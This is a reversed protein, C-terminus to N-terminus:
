PYGISIVVTLAGGNKIDCVRRLSMGGQSARTGCHAKGYFATHYNAANFVDALSPLSTDIPLNNREVGHTWAYHGTQLTARWPSCVPHMSMCEQFRTGRAALADMHPTQTVDDGADWVM